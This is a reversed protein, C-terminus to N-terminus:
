GEPEELPVNLPQATGATAQRAQLDSFPDDGGKFSWRCHIHENMNCDIDHSCARGQVLYDPVGFEDTTGILARKELLTAEANIRPCFITQVPVWESQSM